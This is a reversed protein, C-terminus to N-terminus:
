RPLARLPTRTYDEIRQQLEVGDTSTTGDLAGHVREVSHVIGNIRQEIPLDLVPALIEAAGDVEGQRVRAIALDARSGAADGFAWDPDAPDAYAAVAEASYDQTAAAQDALWALADAAFYLQRHRSFTAVGGMEDMEDMEDSRVTNWANDARAIAARAQEAHGLLGWARGESAALWVVSSNGAREAFM